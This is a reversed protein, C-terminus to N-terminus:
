AGRGYASQLENIHAGGDGRKFREYAMNADEGRQASISSSFKGPGQPIASDGISGIGATYSSLVQPKSGLAGTIGGIINETLARAHTGLTEGSAIGSGANGLWWTAGGLIGGAFANVGNGVAGAILATAASGIKGRFLWQGAEMVSDVMGVAFRLPAGLIPVYSLFNAAKTLTGKGTRTYNEDVNGFLAM